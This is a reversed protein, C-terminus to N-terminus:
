GRAVQARERESAPAAAVQAEGQKLELVFEAGQGPTSRVWIKGDHAQVIQYIIPLGLGTGGEFQSQFPEFIKEIQQHTLGRGTDAISILWSGHGPVLSVTLTGGGPMARVANECLNWFVQKMRDGDVVSYAQEAQIRRVVQLPAGAQQPRNELLTLTDKLLPVLDLNSFRYNKERTYDLVDSIIENLRVTERVVIEILRREDENLASIGSLVKVSGAIGSLPQRMEHAIGAAMRGLAALRERMRVERELRRMETLDDFTYVYGALGHDPINLASFTVGFTKEEGGPTSARVEGHAASSEVDPLRDLFLESIRMGFVEAATRELLQEGAANLVKIRGDLDTTILGGRMSYIINEHLAQLNELAGSTQELEVGAQRLKTSLQGSLYAIAGFAFLNIFITAQLSKIDPRLTSYSRIVEFYSLELMAGVLIFALAATLYTWARSLLISAMIIVLPYVFNFYSETGGSLYVVVTAFGLDTLIQLRSHMQDDRWLSLLLAYFLSVAFWLVIVGFFAGEPISTPTLRTVALEIGVLFLIVFIRVKVLWILWTRQKSETAM